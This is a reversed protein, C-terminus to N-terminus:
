RLGVGYRLEEPFPTCLTVIVCLAESLTCVHTVDHSRNPLSGQSSIGTCYWTKDYYIADDVPCTYQSALMSPKPTVSICSFDLAETHGM